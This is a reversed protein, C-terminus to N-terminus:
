QSAFFILTVGAVAITAAIAKRIPADTEKLLFYAAIPTTVCNLSMIYTSVSLLAGLALALMVGYAGGFRFLMVAPCWRSKVFDVNIPRKGFYVVAWMSLAAIIKAPFVYGAYGIEAIMYKDFATLVVILFATSVSFFVGAPRATYKNTLVFGAAFVLVGGLVRLPVITEGLIAIGIWTAFGIQFNYLISFVSAETYELAKANIFHFLMAAIISAAFILILRLDYVAWNIKAIFLGPIGPLAVGTAGIAALFLPDVNMRNFTRRAVISYGTNSILNAFLAIWM